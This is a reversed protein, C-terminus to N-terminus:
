DSAPLFCTAWVSSTIEPSNLLPAISLPTPPGCRESLERPSCCSLATGEGRGSSLPASQPGSRQSRTSPPSPWRAPAPAEGWLPGTFPLCPFLCGLARQRGGALSWLAFPSWQHTWLSGLEQSIPCPSPRPQVPLPFIEQCWNKVSGRLSWRGQAQLSSPWSFNPHRHHHRSRSQPASPQPVAAGTSALGSALGGEAARM